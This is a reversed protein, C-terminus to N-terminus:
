RSAAVRDRNREAHGHNLRARRQAPRGRQPPNPRAPSDQALARGHGGPQTTVLAAAVAIAIVAAAAAVGAVLRRGPRRARGAMGLSTRESVHRLVTEADPAERELVRLAARLNEESGLIKGCGALSSAPADDTGTVVV